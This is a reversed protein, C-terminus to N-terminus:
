ELKYKIALTPYALIYNTYSYFQNSIEIEAGISFKNKVVNYWIQPETLVIIKKGELGFIKDKNESWVDIFGSLTIKKNFITGAWVGTWQLDNSGKSFNNYKYAVYSSLNFKGLTFPYELGIMYANEIPASFSNSTFLGGNYEIHAQFPFNGLKITRSIETYISGINNKTLNLDADMFMFWSGSKDMKFMEFTETLYNRTNYRSNISNRVDYHLQLNQAPISRILFLFLIFIVRKM